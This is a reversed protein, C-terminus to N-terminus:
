RNKRIYLTDDCRFICTNQMSYFISVFEMYLNLSYPMVRCEISTQGTQNATENDTQNFIGELSAIQKAQKANTELVTEVLDLVHKLDIDKATANNESEM